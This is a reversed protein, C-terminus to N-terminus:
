SNKWGVVDRTHLTESVEAWYSIAPNSAPFLSMRRSHFLNAIFFFRHHPHLPAYHQTYGTKSSLCLALLHIYLRLGMFM